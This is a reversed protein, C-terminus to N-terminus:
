MPVQTLAESLEAERGVDGRPVLLVLANEKGFRREIAAADQGARSAAALDGMGYSFSIQRQALYSPVVIMVVIVLM